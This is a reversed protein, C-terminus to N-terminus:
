GLKIECDSKNSCIPKTLRKGKRNSTEAAVRNHRVIAAGTLMAVIVDNLYSELSKAKRDHWRGLLHGSQWQTRLLNILMLSLRGSPFYDWTHWHRTDSGYLSPWKLRRKEWDVRAKLESKTPQHETRDKTEGLRLVMVEVGVVPQNDPRRASPRNVSLALQSWQPFFRTAVNNKRRASPRLCQCTLIPGDHHARKALRCRIVSTVM